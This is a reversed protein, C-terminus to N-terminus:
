KAVGKVIRMYAERDVSVWRVNDTRLAYRRVHAFRTDQSIWGFEAGIHPKSVSTAVGVVKMDRTFVPSGSNGKVFEADIEIRDPGEGLVRGCLETLVGGGASNGVVCIETQLDPIGEALEFAPPTGTLEYRLLDRDAAIQMAGLKLEPGGVTRATIADGDRAVHENTYLWYKGDARVVFGTATGNGAKLIAVKDRCRNFLGFSAVPKKPEARRKEVVMKVVRHVLIHYSWLGDRKSKECQLVARCARGQSDNFSFFWFPRRHEKEKRAKGFAPEFLRSLEWGHAERDVDKAGAVPSAVIQVIERTARDVWVQCPFFGCRPSLAGIRPFKYDARRLTSCPLHYVDVPSGDGAGDMRIGAKRMEADIKAGLEVGFVAEPRKAWEPKAETPASSKAKRPEKTREGDGVSACGAVAAFAVVMGIEILNM